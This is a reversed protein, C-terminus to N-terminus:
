DGQISPLNMCFLTCMQQIKVRKKKFSSCGRINSRNGFSCKTWQMIAKRSTTFNDQGDVAYSSLDMFTVRGPAMESLGSVSALIRDLSKSSSSLGVNVNIKTTLAEGPVGNDGIAMYNSRDHNKLVVISGDKIGEELVRIPVQEEKAIKEMSEKGIHTQLKSM